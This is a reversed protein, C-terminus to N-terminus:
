FKMYSFFFSFFFLFNFITILWKATIRNSVVHVSIKMLILLQPLINAPSTYIMSNKPWWIMKHHLVQWISKFFCKWIFTIKKPLAKELLMQIRIFDSGVFTSVLMNSEVFTIGFLGFDLLKGYLGVVWNLINFVRTNHAMLRIRNCHVCWHHEKNLLFVKMCWNYSITTQHQHGDVLRVIYRIHGM